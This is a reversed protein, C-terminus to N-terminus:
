SRWSLWVFINLTYKIILKFIRCTFYIYSILNPEKTVSKLISSSLICVYCNKMPNLSLNFNIETTKRERLNLTRNFMRWVRKSIDHRLFELLTDKGQCERSRYTRFLGNWEGRGNLSITFVCTYDESLVNSAKTVADLSGTVLACTNKTIIIAVLSVPSLAALTFPSPDPNPAM